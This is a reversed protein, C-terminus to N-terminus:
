ASGGLQAAFYYMLAALGLLSCGIVFRRPRRAVFRRAMFLATFLTIGGVLAFVAGVITLLESM